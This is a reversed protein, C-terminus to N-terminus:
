TLSSAPTKWHPNVQSCCCSAKTQCGSLNENGSIVPPKYLWECYHRKLPVFGSTRGVLLCLNKCPNSLLTWPLFAYVFMVCCSDSFSRSVTASKRPTDTCATPRRLISANGDAMTEAAVPAELIAARAFFCCGLFRGEGWGVECSVAPSRCGRSASHASWSCGFPPMQVADRERHARRFQPAEQFTNDGHQGPRAMKMGPCRSQEEVQWRCESSGASSRSVSESRSPLWLLLLAPPSLRMAWM